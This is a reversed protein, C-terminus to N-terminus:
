RHFMQLFFIGLFIVYYFVGLIVGVALVKLAWWEISYKQFLM